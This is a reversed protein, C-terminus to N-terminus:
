APEPPLLPELRGILDPVDRGITDWVTDLDVEDYNHILRDRMGSIDAWPVEPHASRFDASLRKVAEGIITFEHLVAMITRRDAAFTDRAMGRTFGIVERAAYVIDHVTDLDHRM